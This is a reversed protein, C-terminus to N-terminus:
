ATDAFEIWPSTRSPQGWARWRRESRHPQQPPRTRHHLILADYIEGCNICRWGDFHGQGTDDSYDYFEDRVMCGECRACVM